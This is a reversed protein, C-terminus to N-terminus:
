RCFDPLVDCGEDAEKCGPISHDVERLVVDRATRINYGESDPLSPPPFTGGGPSVHDSITPRGVWTWGMALDLLSLHGSLAHILDYPVNGDDVIEEAFFNHSTPSTRHLDSLSRSFKSGIM